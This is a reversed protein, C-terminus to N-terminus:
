QGLRRDGADGAGADLGRVPQLLEVDDDPRGTEVEAGARQVAHADTTAVSAREFVM